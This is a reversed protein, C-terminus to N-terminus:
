RPQLTGGPKPASQKTRAPQRNGSQKAVAREAAVPEPKKPAAYTYYVRTSREPADAHVSGCVLCAVTAVIYQFM